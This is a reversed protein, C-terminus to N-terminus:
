GYVHQAEKLGYVDGYVKGQNVDDAPRGASVTSQLARAEQNLETQSRLLAELEEATFGEPVPILREHVLIQPDKIFYPVTVEKVRDIYIPVEHNVKVIRDVEVPVEVRLEIPVEKIVEVLKEVEVPVEKIVEILKDVEVQVEIIKEIEKEVITPVEILREVEQIRTKNRRHAWVRFYRLLRQTLQTQYTRQQSRQKRSENFIRKKRLIRIHLTRAIRKLLWNRVSGLERHKQRRVERTQTNEKSHLANYLNLLFYVPYVLFSVFCIFLEFPKEPKWNFWGTISLVLDAYIKQKQEFKVRTDANQDRNDKTVLSAKNISNSLKDAEGEKYTIREDQQNRRTYLSKLDQNIRTAEDNYGAVADRCDPVTACDLAKLRRESALQNARNIQQNKTDISTIIESREQRLNELEQKVDDLAARNQAIVQGNNHDLEDDVQVGAIDKTALNALYSNIGSFSLLGFALVILVLALKLLRSTSPWHYIVGSSWMLVACETVALLLSFPSMLGLVKEDPFLIDYGKTNFWVILFGMVITLMMIPLSKVDLFTEIANIKNHTGRVGSDQLM